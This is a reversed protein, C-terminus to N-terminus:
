ATGMLARQYKSPLLRSLHLSLQRPVFTWGLRVYTRARLPAERLLSLYAHRWRAIAKMSPWQALSLLLPQRQSSLTRVVNTSENRGYYDSVLELYHNEGVFCQQLREKAPLSRDIGHQRKRLHEM